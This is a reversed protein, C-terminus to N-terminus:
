AADMVSSVRGREGRRTDSPRAKLNGFLYIRSAGPLRIAQEIVVQQAPQRHTPKPDYRTAAASLASYKMDSRAIEGYEVMLKLYYFANSTNLKALKAIETAGMSRKHANLIDLIAQRHTLSRESPTM